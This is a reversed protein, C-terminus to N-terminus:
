NIKMMGKFEIVIILLHFHMIKLIKHLYVNM